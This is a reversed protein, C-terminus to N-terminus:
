YTRNELTELISFLYTANPSHKQLKSAAIRANKLYKNNLKKSKKIASSAIILKIIAEFEEKSSNPNLKRIKDKLKRDKLAYITPLTINGNYLDQGAPKGLKTNDQMFDLLDDIIQFSIGLNIAYTYLLKMVNETAGALSAGCLFSAAILLATKNKTKEIYEEITIDFNFLLRQQIIESHCLDTFNIHDYYHEEIDFESILETCRSILYNGLMIATYNDTLTHISPIGRRTEAGDIVDDHILSATHLLEFIAAITYIHEPQYDGFYSGIVTFLPRLKKGGNICLNLILDKYYQELALDDNIIRRIEDDIKQKNINTIAFLDM